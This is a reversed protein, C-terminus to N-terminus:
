PLVARLNDRMDKAAERASEAVLELASEASMGDSYKGSKMWAGIIGRSSNVLAGSGDKDFMGAVGQATGGQAGYGPVLFFTRPMRARLAKGEEPHTAGVVAGGRSYGNRGIAEAGWGEVLDAVHEYVREGSALELEQLESSSPNSTRVLVFIDKDTATAADVFPTIGDTGLYPNVTVADEHWPDFVTGQEAVGSLHHAYAAATSGIDGRKVDGLVYLGQQKAYECTMTYADIGAPGLAEYMAIQPKVAPVIDAVADIVARNFEFFAVSLQAAPAEAPDEVQEAIDDAFDSVIQAPVLAETPDLGVVSPNQKSEIAEVLRDM